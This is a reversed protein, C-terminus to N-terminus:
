KSPNATTSLRSSIKMLLKRYPVEFAMITADDYENADRNIWGSFRPLYKANKLAVNKRLQPSGPVKM